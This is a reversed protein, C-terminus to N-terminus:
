PQILNELMAWPRGGGLSNTVTTARKRMIMIFPPSAYPCAFAEAQERLPIELEDALSNLAEAYSELVPLAIVKAEEELRRMETKIAGRRITFDEVWQERTWMDQADVSTDGTAIKRMAEVIHESHEARARSDSYRDIASCLRMWPEDRRQLEKLADAPVRFGREVVAARFHAEQEMSAYPVNALRDPAPRQAHKPILEKRAHESMKPPSDVQADSPPRAAEYLGPARAPTAPATAPPAHAPRPPKAAMTPGTILQALKDIANM